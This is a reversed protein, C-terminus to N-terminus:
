RLFASRAWLLFARVAGRRSTSHVPLPGLLSRSPPELPSQDLENAVTAHVHMNPSSAASALRGSGSTTTTSVSPQVRQGSWGPELRRTTVFQRGATRLEQRVLELVAEPPEGRGTEAFREPLAREVLETLQQAGVGRAPELGFLLAPGLPEKREAALKSRRLPLRFQSREAIEVSAELAAPMQSFTRWMQRPSKLYV